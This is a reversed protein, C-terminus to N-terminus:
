TLLEEFLCEGFGLIEFTLTLTNGDVDYQGATSRCLSCDPSNGSLSTFNQNITIIIAANGKFLFFFVRELLM